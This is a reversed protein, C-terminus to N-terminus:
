SPTGCPWEAYATSVCNTRVVAILSSRTWIALVFLWPQVDNALLVRFYGALGFSRRRLRGLDLRPCPSPSQFMLHLVPGQGRSILDRLSEATFGPQAPQDALPLSLALEILGQSLFVPGEHRRNSLGTLQLADRYSLQDLPGRM